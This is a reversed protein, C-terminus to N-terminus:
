MVDETVAESPPANPSSGLPRFFDSRQFSLFFSCNLILVQETADNM